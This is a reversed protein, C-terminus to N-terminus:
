QSEGAQQLHHDSISKIDRALNKLDANMIDINLGAKLAGRAQDCWAVSPWEDWLPTLAEVL